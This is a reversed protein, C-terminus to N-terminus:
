ALAQRLEEVELDRRRYGTQAVLDRAKEWHPRAAAPDGQALCLRAAELSADALHLKMSGRQALRFAEHVDRWARPFASAEGGVGALRFWAARALLGRAIFEIVGAQRLGAVAHQLCQGAEAFAPAAAPVASQQAEWMWARGLTLQDLAIDLLPYQSEFWELTQAARTRVEQGHGQTLLLDCYLFGLLSYLLPYAPDDEKQLTEAERFAAAAETLRGAQHLADALKPRSAMRQFSDGSRDAWAISQQAYALASPLEGLTLTLESLNSANIAAFKWEEQALFMELSAQMPQVAAPLQGLARLRFGAGNLIFAQSAPRLEAVPQRWPTAFFNRLAGLEAGFAGLKNLAFKENERRIRRWHVDWYADNLRGGACGHAIAALLPEMEALTDPLEKATRTLHEYLRNNAARWTDPWDQQLVDRFHERVLPHADLEDPAHRSVEDLLKCQRLRQVARLWNAQSRKGIQETLGAIKPAKRLADLSDQDATRDFLGLLRLVESEPGAGFRAALAAIVRRPHKGKDEPIDLDPIQAANNIHHGPIDRLYEALLKLALAHSGFAAATAELEEDSGRVGGVRLFARAAPPALRELNIQLYPSVSRPADAVQPEANLGSSIISADHLSLDSVSGTGYDLPERTSILCLGPGPHHGRALEELLTLLAPDKLKGREHAHGSQLPELGDLLLLTPQQRILAALREGKDWPTGATPDADGFWRLAQDIFLDASAARDSTGQSYFSWAYVREAGRYNDARMAELWKNILTSKGVGGWAVFSLVRVEQKEWVEDLLNLERDRGFVDMGTSPLRTIEINEPKPANWRPPPPATLLANADGSVLASHYVNGNIIINRDGSISFTTLSETRVEAAAPRLQEIFEYVSEAVTTFIEDADDRYDKSIAKGDRPLMQLQRLWPVVKWLCPRVLLPILLMGNDKRRNLLFPIEEKQCFDSALYDASILCISVAAREMTAKIEPYWEAGADIKRDDWIKIQDTQELVRLHPRLADKWEEDKHSYSIFVTPKDM